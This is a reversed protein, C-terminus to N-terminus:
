ELIIVPVICEEPMFSGHTISPKNGFSGEIAFVLFHSDSFINSQWKYCENPNEEIINDAFIETDYILCRNSSTKVKLNKNPKINNGECYINGHDATLIIKYDNQKLIEILEVLESSKIASDINRYLNSKYEGFIKMSHSEADFLNCVLGLAKYGKLYRFDIEKAKNKVVNKNLDIRGWLIDNEKIDKNKFYNVFGKEEANNETTVDERLFMNPTKGAFISTRSFLTISPLISFSELEKISFSDLYRKLIFWEDYSMGDMVILAINEQKFNYSIFDLIRDVTYPKIHYPYNFLQEYIGEVIFSKFLNSIKSNIEDFNFDDLNLDNIQIQYLIKLFLKSLNFIDDVDDLDIKGDEYIKEYYENLDLINSQIKQITVEDSNSNLEFQILWPDKELTNKNIKDSIKNSILDIKSFYHIFNDSLDFENKGDIYDLILSEIWKKMESDDQSLKMIDVDLKKSIIEIISDDVKKKDILYDLAIRLNITPNFLTGLDINWISQFIINKTNEYSIIIDNKQSENCYDFIRQYYKVDTNKLISYDLNPFVDSISIKVANSIFARKVDKNSYILKSEASKLTKFRFFDEDKEYKFIKYDNALDRLFNIDELLGDLDYLFVNNGYNKIKNILSDYWKM